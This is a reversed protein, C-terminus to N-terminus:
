RRDRLSEPRPKSSTSDVGAAAAPAYAQGHFLEQNQTSCPVGEEVREIYMYLFYYSLYIYICWFYIYIYVFIDIYIRIYM